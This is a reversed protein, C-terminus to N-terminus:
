RVRNLIFNLTTPTSTNIVKFILTVNVANEDPTMNLSLQVVQARPEFKSICTLIQHRMQSLVEEDAPEFLLHKLNAGVYPQYIREHYDTLLLNVISRKVAAENTVRVIDRKGPHVQLGVNFDSFLETKKNTTTYKDAINITSM